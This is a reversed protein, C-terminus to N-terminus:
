GLEWVFAVPLPDQLRQVAEAAQMRRRVQTPLSEVACNM